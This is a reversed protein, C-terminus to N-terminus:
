DLLVTASLASESITDTRNVSVWWRLFHLLDMAYARLTTEALRRVYARDLFRNMWEVERGTPLEVIRFPSRANAPDPQHIVQFIM